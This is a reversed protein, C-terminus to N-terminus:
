HKLTFNIYLNDVESEPGHQIDGALFTLTLMLFIIGRIGGGQMEQQNASILLSRLIKNGKYLLLLRM